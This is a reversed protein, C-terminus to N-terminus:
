KTQEICLEKVELTGEGNSIVRFEFGSLPSKTTFVQSFENDGSVKPVLPVESGPIAGRVTGRDVSGVVKSEGSFIASYRLLVNYNGARLDLYPGYTLYGTQGEQAIRSPGESQPITTLLEGGMFCNSYLPAEKSGYYKDVLFVAGFISIGLLFIMSRKRLSKDMKLIGGPDNEKV